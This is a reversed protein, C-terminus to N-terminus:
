NLLFLVSTCESVGFLRVRFSEITNWHLQIVFANRGPVCVCLAIKRLRSKAACWSGLQFPNHNWDRRMAIYGLVAWAGWIRNKTWVRETPDGHMHKKYTGTTHMHSSHHTSLTLPSTHTHTKAVIYLLSHTTLARTHRFLHPSLPKPSLRSM